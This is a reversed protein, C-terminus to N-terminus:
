KVNIEPVPYAALKNIIEPRYKKLKKLFINTENAYARRSVGFLLVGKHGNKDIYSKYHYANWETIDIRDDNGEGMVFDLIYEGTQQNKVVEYNCIKDTQKRELLSKIQTGVVDKVTLETILFDIIMMDNYHEANQGNAVYEQKYYFDNPHTSWSLKYSLQNFTLETPIGYYNITDKDQQYDAKLVFLVPLLYTVIFFKYM